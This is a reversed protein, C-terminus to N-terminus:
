QAHVTSPAARGQSNTILSLDQLSLLGLGPYRSGGSHLCSVKGLHHMRCPMDAAESCDSRCPPLLWQAGREPGLSVLGLLGRRSAVAVRHPSSTIQVLDSPGQQVVSVEHQASGAWAQQQGVQRSIRLRHASFRLGPYSGTPLPEVVACRSGRLLCTIQLINTLM